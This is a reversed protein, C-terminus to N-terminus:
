CKIFSFSFEDKNLQMKYVPVDTKQYFDIIEDQINEKINCGLYIATIAPKAFVVPYSKTPLVEYPLINITRWEREYKWCSAKTGLIAKGYEHCSDYKSEVPRKDSYIVKGFSKLFSIDEMKKFDYEICFGSYSDAYHAWMLKSDNIESFCSIAVQQKYIPLSLICDTIYPEVVDQPIGKQFLINELAEYFNSCYLLRNKEEKKLRFLGDFCKIFAKREEKQPYVDPIEALTSDFPDNFYVPSTYYIAGDMVITKWKEVPIMNESKEIEERPLNPTFFIGKEEDKLKFGCENSVSYYKYLSRYHHYLNQGNFKSM